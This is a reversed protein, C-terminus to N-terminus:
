RRRNAEPWPRGMPAPELLDELRSRIYASQSMELRHAEARVRARETPRVWLGLQATCQEELVSKKLKDNM